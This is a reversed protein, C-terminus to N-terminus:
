FIKSRVLLLLATDNSQNINQTLYAEIELQAPNWFLGPGLRLSDFNFESGVLRNEKSIKIIGAIALGFNELFAYNITTRNWLFFSRGIRSQGFFSWRMLALSDFYARTNNFTWIKLRHQSSFGIVMQQKKQRMM